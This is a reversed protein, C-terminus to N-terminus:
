VGFADKVRDFFSKSEQPTVEYGLAEGLQKLLERQKATLKTPTQIHVTVVQDGQGNQRLYPVGKGRLHFSTGTQTGAPITLEEEGKLTPVKIKDGLAAQVFSINLDLLVDNDRRRFYRHPQVRLSVFLNGPPGGFLGAEGEGALRVQNGDDVGAPVTVVLRKTVPVRQEGRCRSCPTGVVEGRGGCRPCLTVNVFSGFLSQQVRRVEGRGNCEPCRRPQTGPEAGSGGCNSCAELRTVEIEKEAGFVAEEFTLTVQARVDGGRGPGQRSAGARSGFGFFEEFIDGLGGFGFGGFDGFGAGNGQVGAHGYRDYAARRDPDRLVEYAENVEKFRAEADPSKNVDPHYQRALRRFAKKLEEDTAQRGVGLVEYYDRKEAM